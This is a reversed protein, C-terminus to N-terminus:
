PGSGMTFVLSLAFDVDYDDDDDIHLVLFFIVYNTLVPSLTPMEKKSGHLDSYM